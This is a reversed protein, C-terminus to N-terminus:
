MPIDINRRFVNYEIMRGRITRRWAGPTLLSSLRDGYLGVETLQLTKLLQKCSKNSAMM